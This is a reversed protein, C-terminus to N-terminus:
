SNVKFAELITECLDDGDFPKQIFKYIELNETRKITEPDGHASLFIIPNKFGEEQVERVFTIGNMRPMNIDSVICDFEHESVAQKGEIGNIVTIIESVSAVGGDQLIDIIIELLDEEDDLILLKYKKM